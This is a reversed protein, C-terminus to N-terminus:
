SKRTSTSYQCAPWDSQNVCEDNTPDYVLPTDCYFNFCLRRSCVYYHGTCNNNPDQYDGDAKDSCNFYCALFSLSRENSFKYCFLWSKCAPNTSFIPTVTSGSDLLKRPSCYLSSINILLMFFGILKNM